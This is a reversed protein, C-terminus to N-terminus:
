AGWELERYKVERTETKEVIEAHEKFNDLQNQLEVVLSEYFSDGVYSVYGATSILLRCVEGLETGEIEAYKNLEKCIEMAKDYNDM